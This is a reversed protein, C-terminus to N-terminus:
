LDIQHWIGIYTKESIDVYQNNEVATINYQNIYHNKNPALTIKNKAFITTCGFKPYQAEVFYMTNSKRNGNEDCFYFSDEPKLESLKYIIPRKKM